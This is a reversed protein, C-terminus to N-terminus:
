LDPADPSQRQSAQPWHRRPGPGWHGRQSTLGSLGSVQLLKSLGLPAPGAGLGRGAGSKTQMDPTVPRTVVPNKPQSFKSIGEHQHLWLGQGAGELVEWPHRLGGIVKASNGTDETLRQSGRFSHGSATAESLLRAKGPCSPSLDPLQTCPARGGWPPVAELAADVCPRPPVPARAGHHRALPMPRGLHKRGHRPGAGAPPGPEAEERGEWAPWPLHRIGHRPAPPPDRNASGPEARAARGRGGPGRDSTPSPHCLVWGQGHTGM